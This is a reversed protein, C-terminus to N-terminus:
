LHRVETGSRFDVTKDSTSLLLLALGGMTIPAVAIEPSCILPAANVLFGAFAIAAPLFLRKDGTARARRVRRILVLIVFDIAALEAVIQFHINM